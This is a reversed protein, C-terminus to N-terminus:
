FVKQELRDPITFAFVNFRTKKLDNVPRNVPVAQEIQQFAAGQRVVGQGFGLDGGKAPFHLPGPRLSKLRMMDLAKKDLHEPSQAPAYFRTLMAAPFHGMHRNANPFAIPDDAGPRRNLFFVFSNAEFFIMDVALWDCRKHTGSVRQQFRDDAQDPFLIVMKQLLPRNQNIIGIGSRLDRGNEQHRVADPVAACGSAPLRVDDRLLELENRDIGRAFGPIGTDRWMQVKARGRGFLNLRRAFPKLGVPKCRIQFLRRGAEGRYLDSLGMKGLNFRAAERFDFFDFLLYFGTERFLDIKPVAPGKLKAFLFLGSLFGPQTGFVGPASGLIQRFAQAAPLRKQRLLCEDRGLRRLDSAAHHDQWLAQQFM